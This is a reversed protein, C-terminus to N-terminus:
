FRKQAAPLPPAAAGAAPPLMRAEGSYAAAAADARDGHRPRRLRQCPMAKNLSSRCIGARNRRPTGDCPREGPRVSTAQAARRGQRARGGQLGRMGARAGWVAHVAAVRRGDSSMRQCRKPANNGNTAQKTVINWSAHVIPVSHGFYHSSACNCPPQSLVCCHRRAAQPAALPQCQLTQRCSRSRSHSGPGGPAAAQCPAYAAALEHPTCSGGPM